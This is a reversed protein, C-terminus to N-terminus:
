THTMLNPLLLTGDKRQFTRLPGDPWFHIVLAYFIKTFKLSKLSKIELRPGIMKGTETETLDEKGIEIQFFWNVPTWFVPKNLGTLCNKQNASFILSDTDMLSEKKHYSSLNKANLISISRSGNKVSCTRSCIIFLFHQYLSLLFAQHPFLIFNHHLRPTIRLCSM